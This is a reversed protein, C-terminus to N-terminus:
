WPRPGLPRLCLFGNVGLWLKDLLSGSLWRVDGYYIVDWWLHSALGLGYAIVITRLLPKPKPIILLLVLFSLSSHFLPNRHGGIGLFRIDLDPFLTGFYCPLLGLLFLIVKSENDQKVFFVIYIMLLFVGVLSHEIRAESKQGLLYMLLGNIVFGTIIAILIWIFKNKM